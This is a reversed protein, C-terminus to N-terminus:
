LHVSIVGVKTEAVISKSSLVVELAALSLSLLAEVLEVTHSAHLFRKDTLLSKVSFAAIGAM